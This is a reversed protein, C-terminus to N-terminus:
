CHIRNLKSQTERLSDVHGQGDPKTYLISLCASILDQSKAIMKRRDKLPVLNPQSAIISLLKATSRVLYLEDDETVWVRENMSILRSYINLLADVDLNMEILTEPVPSDFLKLRFCRLELERVIFALPFCHGSSEYEMALSKVKSLLRRCRETSSDPKELEKDLIHTWVSEILLPDNHHSCNLITLKCEWLEFREAFDSYLQTLNYLTSNLLKIAQSTYNKDPIISMADLVQKQIQAVELKDELDKLLVGNHASYGVTDSRMCMVARALYEIRHQLSISESHINALKDLIKSAAAHQGNREHYKWLLDALVLNEPTRNVARGLFSGLSPESIELLEGLLNHSLLWEYVAIHLLQDQCQLSLSIISILHNNALKDRDTSELSPYISSGKNKCVNTYVHDLMLKIEKYCIMRNQFAMFGEQDEAPENNRYFHLAAENPDSRAACISCLEIVGTYFGASTFQQCISTLPLNPAASKCLQLATKLREDKEDPDNCTKSLLLIESAKHSVADEHRYLNPCVERLKSSISGVSANDNLYSNILTVILLGCLDSRTLILDRFTCSQLIAQQEKTLRSVLLHCQHECLIKWLALVECSHKILRILADLSKKEETAADEATNKQQVSAGGFTGHGSAFSQQHGYPSQPGIGSSVGSMTQHQQQQHHHHQQQQLYGGPGGITGAHSMNKGVLGALNTLAFSDLFRKIAYLDELIQACDQQSITTHLKDDICRKHWISRLLRSMHLYLGAHKASYHFHASDASLPLNGFSQNLPTSVPFQTQQILSQQVSSAPRSASFPTSMFLRPGGPQSEVFGTAPSNFSLQRPAAPQGGMYAGVDFFPEGGYLIFAQAAWDGLETGKFTEICALLLSTACAQPETQVQFYAKVAENHPGHCALLLQQLIDVSKLLSVIHVGQNTLLAVKKPVQAARLPTEVTIKDKPKVEAVAWVQGDMTMVTSSEILNQRSPFPESSLSWLLDQDPQPTSVMLLSGQSYFASHVQKPKGVNNNPTYGPPLRVHLLYLGQPRQQELSGALGAQQQPQQQLQQLMQQQQIGFLIPTTSFYFRVGTQTIAILHLHSSDDASLPCLATVPRFVSPEITRQINAASSAIDNQSIRALRKVTNSDTGIDWAEIAGKETLVYLLKRSNDITIKSISDNESFVKFIGPVLHSMLGQSHNVKKYRKGFWNSEAQYYIEYLCGDRGGLFIRGDSTGEVCTVAVNDTNLVFIPKNLLQMEETSSTISRNPSAKSDGFTVGLIVIEVPTTLVLLYKVDAIFVGPKPAVLGVSVILHSLGDFYAVDRSQEYTWIYIDSDISLWARGIEPFLGMMCHCKIHKFHEMIEPPIPIKNVTSLQNLNKLGLSLSSLNQYDYDNLGSATAIGSQKVGTVELLGPSSCDAIDHRELMTGAFELSDALAASESLSM